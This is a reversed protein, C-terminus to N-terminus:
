ETFRWHFGGATKHKGKCVKSISSADVKLQRSAEAISEYVKHTEICEVKKKCGVGRGPRLNALQKKRQEESANKWRQKGDKSQKEKYAQNEWRKKMIKSRKDKVSKDEFRHNRNDSLVLNYGNPVLSNYLQIYYTEKENLQDIPINYELILHEFNDWGYKQIALGFATGEKYHSGSQGWRQEPSTM